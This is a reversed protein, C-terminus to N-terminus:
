DKLCHRCVIMTRTGQGSAIATWQVSKSQLYLLETKKKM